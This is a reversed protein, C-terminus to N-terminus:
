KKRKVKVLITKETFNGAADYVRLTVPRDGEDLFPIYIQPGVPLFLKDGLDIYYNNQIGSNSDLAKFAFRVVDGEVISDQSAKMSSIVPPTTDSQIRYHAIPGGSAIQLHFYYIGDKPIPISINSGILTQKNTPNTTPSTDFAYRYVTNPKGLWLFNATEQNYWRNQNPHSPSFVVFSRKPVDPNKSSLDFDGVRYSGSQTMRLVNTALGDDALVVTKENDFTIDFTGLTLPRVVITAMTLSKQGPPLGVIACSFHIEGLIKDITSEIIYSCASGETIINTISVIKPNYTLSFQVANIAEDGVTTVVSFQQESGINYIGWDPQLQMTSNYLAYPTHKLEIRGNNQIYLLCLTLTFLPISYAIVIVYYRWCYEETSKRYHHRLVLYLFCLLTAIAVITNTVMSLDVRPIFLLVGGPSKELGPFVINEVLYTTGNEFVVTKDTEGSTNWNSGSNFYSRVLQDTSTDSFSSGYIGYEKTYFVIETGPHLYTDKFFHAYSNDLLYNAFLAGVMENNQFIPRGTSIGIEGVFTTTEISEVHSGNAVARGIPSTLFVNDGYKGTNLTRSVMVGHKNAIGLLGINRKPIEARILSILKQRNDLLLNLIIAPDAAVEDGQTKLHNMDKALGSNLMIKEHMAINRIHYAGAIHLVVFVVAFFALTGFLSKGLSRMSKKIHVDNWSHRM